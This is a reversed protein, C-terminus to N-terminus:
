RNRHSSDLPGPRIRWVDSFYQSTYEQFRVGGTMLMADRRPDYAIRHGFRPPPVSDAALLNWEVSGGSSRLRWVEATTYGVEGGSLLLGGDPLRAASAGGRRSPRPEPTGVFSWEAGPDVAISWSSEPAAGSCALITHNPTHTAIPLDVPAVM